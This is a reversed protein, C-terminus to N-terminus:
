FFYLLVRIDLAEYVVLMDGQAVTAFRLSDFPLLM